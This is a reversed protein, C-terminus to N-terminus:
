RLVGGGLGSMGALVIVGLVDLRKRVGVLGGSLAFVFVGVLDLVLQLSHSQTLVM